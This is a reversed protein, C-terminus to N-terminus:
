ILDIWRGKGCLLTHIHSRVRVNPSKQKLYVSVGGLTGGTGAAAVFADVHGRTQRYIEPGTTEYHARFNSFNEFQNPHFVTKEDGEVLAHHQARFAARRAEQAERLEAAIAAARHYYHRPIFM